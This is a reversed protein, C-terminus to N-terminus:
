SLIKVKDNLTKININLPCYGDSLIQRQDGLTINM